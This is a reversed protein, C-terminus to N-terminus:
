PVPAVGKLANRGDSKNRPQSQAHTTSDLLARAAGGSICNHGYLDLTGLISILSAVIADIHMEHDVCIKKIKAENGSRSEPIVKSAAM